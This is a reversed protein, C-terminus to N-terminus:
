WVKGGGLDEGHINDGSWWKLLPRIMAMMMLRMVSVARAQLLCVKGRDHCLGVAWGTEWPRLEFGGGVEKVM